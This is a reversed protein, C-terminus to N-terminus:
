SFASTRGGQRRVESNLRWVALYNVSLLKRGEATLALLARCRSPIAARDNQFVLAQAARKLDSFTCRESVNAAALVV